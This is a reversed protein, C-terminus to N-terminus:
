APGLMPTDNAAAAAAAASSNLDKVKFAEANYKNWYM